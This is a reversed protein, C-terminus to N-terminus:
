NMQIDTKRISYRARGGGIRSTFYKNEMRRLRPEASNNMVSNHLCSLLQFSAKVRAASTKIFQILIEGEACAKPCESRFKEKNKKTFIKPSKIEAIPIFSILSFIQFSSKRWLELASTALTEKSALQLSWQLYSFIERTLWSFNDQSIFDITENKKRSAVAENQEPFHQVYNLMIRDKIWIM